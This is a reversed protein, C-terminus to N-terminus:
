IKVLEDGLKMLIDLLAYADAEKVVVRQGLSYSSDNSNDIYKQDIMGNNHELIHRRQFMVKLYNM